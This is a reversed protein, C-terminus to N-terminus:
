SFLAVRVIKKLMIGGSGGGGGSVIEKRLYSLLGLLARAHRMKWANCGAM